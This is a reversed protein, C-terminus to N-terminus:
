ERREKWEQENLESTTETKIEKINKDKKLQLRIRSALTQSNEAGGSRSLHM